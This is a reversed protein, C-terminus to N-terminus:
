LSFDQGLYVSRVEDHSLIEDPEGEAMM